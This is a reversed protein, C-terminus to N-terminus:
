LPGRAQRWLKYVEPRMQQLTPISARVEAIRSTDVTGVALGECEGISSITVGMPDILESNGSSTRGTQDATAFYASNEIARARALTSLQQEKLRGHVWATPLLLVEAGRDALARFVEPFRLDYCIAVGFRVDGLSFVLLKGTGPQYQDSERYGFADFLHVKHYTGLLEGAVGVAVATNYVKSAGGPVPECMGAVVAVGSKAAAEQLRSVFPGSLPEAVEALDVDDAADMFMAAEPFVVLKAGASAAEAHLELIRQLNAAKDTTAEFQGLAISLKAM